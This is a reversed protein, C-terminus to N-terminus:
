KNKSMDVVSIRLYKRPNEQIDIVLSDLHGSLSQINNYLTDNYILQGITGEGSNIKQTMTNLQALVNNTQTITQLLDAAALSDSINSFNAIANNLKDENNKITTTISQIDSMIINFKGTPSSVMINLQRSVNEFNRITADINKISADIENENNAIVRNLVKIVSDMSTILEETKDKVPSFQDALDALMSVEINSKMTDGPTYFNTNSSSVIRLGKTGLMDTNYIEAVSEVPIKFDKELNFTVVLKTGYNDTFDIYKIQGIKIGKFTVPSGVNLGSTESYVAYYVRQKAFVNKGKLFNMGWLFLSISLFVVVGFLIVKRKLM